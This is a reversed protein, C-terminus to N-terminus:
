SLWVQMLSTLKDIDIPKSIYDNAGIQLSKERDGKMAKATVALIPLKKFKLDERIIRIAEHGDMEPMMIDMLIIDIKEGIHEMLQVADKGNNAIEIEMNLSQLTTTLAFVNRMDDDAILVRKGALNNTQITPDIKHINKVSKYQADNIKNLFLNVEDILRDSSKASKLVTAKAYSLIKEAQDKPLEFATNIIIPINELSESEKIRELLEIGTGDPLQMDLIICDINSEQNLKEWASSLSFAQIVNIKHEAFSNKIFDSQLEQDEILLIKRVSQSLNLNINEFTTQIAEENVPKHMFGIAGKELFDKRNFTAASMMHIPIHKTEENEKLIRLVEWGDSIPLMVDLIIADPIMEQALKIGMSGDHALTVNFNYNEAFDKLIDAFNVDDEIILISRNQSKSRIITPEEKAEASAIAKKATPESISKSANNPIIFTFTSGKDLASELTIKGGLISAIEKSISLGLGTGGYKRSTSGDEQRFAEFILEQKENSIGKGTDSVKFYLNSDLYSINFDVKGNKGTFKFANSLFNKLVQELRYEDCLFNDPVNDDSSVSFMIQKDKALEKFLEQINRKFDGTNITEIHLEINGSEIKALDLLENILQLLDSGASHIVNAYKVQDESLNKGKNDRLLKALILISNLPTRLEHSMNAMFESKYKSALEVETIKQEVTVQAINLDNNRKELESAKENLEQNTQTLEEQQVRLEEESSELLNTKYVLEENTIRLEEQQAELEETQRQTEELLQEVLHHSQGFKIRTAINRSARILFEVYKVSQSETINLVIELLGLSQGEHILPCIFVTAPIDHAISSKINLHAIDHIPLTKIEKGEVVKGLLGKGSFFTPPCNKEDVGISHSLRFESSAMKRIYMTAGYFPTVQNLIKLTIKSIENEDDIGSIDEILRNNTELVWNTNEIKESATIFQTNLKKLEKRSTRLYELLQFVKFFTYLIVLLSICMLVLAIKKSEDFEKKNKALAETREEIVFHTYSNLVNKTEEQETALQLAIERQDKNQRQHEFHALDVVREVLERLNKQAQGISHFYNSGSELKILGDLAANKDERIRLAEPLLNNTTYHSKYQIIHYLNSEIATSTTFREEALNIILENENTFKNLKNLFYLASFIIVIYALGISILVQLKLIYRHNM